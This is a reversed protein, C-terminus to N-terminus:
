IKRYKRKGIEYLNNGYSDIAVIAPFNEVEMKRLAEPGLEPFAIIKQRIVHKAILAGAGGIAAFYVACYKIMAEVVENSRMGKGIMGALGKEILAPTYLDMRCSTTPGASGIVDGPKAPCPGVYYIVQGRIDFPLEKGQKQLEDLNKHAADRAAYIIGNILVNNGARLKRVVDKTLPTELIYDMIRAKGYNIV